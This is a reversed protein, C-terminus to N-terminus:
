NWAIIKFRITGEREASMCVNVREFKLSFRFQRDTEYVIGHLRVYVCDTSHLLGFKSGALETQTSMLLYVRADM